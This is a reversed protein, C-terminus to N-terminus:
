EGPRVPGKVFAAIDRGDGMFVDNGCVVVSLMSALYECSKSLGNSDGALTTLAHLSPLFGCLGHLCAIPIISSSAVTNRQVTDFKRALTHRRFM